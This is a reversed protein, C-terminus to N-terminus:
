NLGLVTKIVAENLLRGLVLATNRVAALHHESFGSMKAKSEPLTLQVCSIAGRCAGLFYFPTVIMAHTELQLKTDLTKDYRANAHVENEALSQESSFAMSVIGATLPQSFKAVLQEANPGTNFAITLSEPRASYLWISGESAGIREFTSDILQRMTGDLMSGFNKASISDAVLSLHRRLDHVLPTFQPASTLALRSSM